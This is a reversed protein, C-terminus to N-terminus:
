LSTFLFRCCTKIPVYEITQFTMHLGKEILQLIGVAVFVKGASATAFRTEMDNPVQNPLDAYGYAKEFLMEDNQYISICGRFDAPIIRDINM